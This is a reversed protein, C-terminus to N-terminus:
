NMALRYRGCGAHRNPRCRQRGKALVSLKRCGQEPCPAARIGRCRGALIRANRRRGVDGDYRVCGAHQNPRCRQRGEVLVSLKRWGQELCPAARIGRCRGALIRANGRGGVDGDYRVCGAHQNPRCRQRGEVLVSLKRWGQESCRAARIGRCRGAPIRANRRRGVDGDYRVCGAHQNPRCRQRGEVLM